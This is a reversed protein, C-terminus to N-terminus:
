LRKILLLNLPVIYLFAILKVEDLFVRRQSHVVAEVVLARRLRSELIVESLPPPSLVSLELLTDKRLSVVRTFLSFNYRRLVIFLEHFKTWPLVVFDNLLFFVDHVFLKYILRM